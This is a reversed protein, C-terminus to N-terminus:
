NHNKLNSRLSLNQLFMSQNKSLSKSKNCLLNKNLLLNRKLKRNKLLRNQNILRFLWNKQNRLLQNSNLLLIIKLSKQLNNLWKKLLKQSKLLRRRKRNELRLIWFKMLDQVKKQYIMVELYSILNMKLMILILLDLILKMSKMRQRILRKHFRNRRNIAKNKLKKLKLLHKCLLITSKKQRM